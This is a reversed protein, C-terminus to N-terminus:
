EWIKSRWTKIQLYKKDPTCVKYILIIKNEKENCAELDKYLDELEELVNSLEEAYIRQRYELNTKFLKDIIEEISTSLVFNEM